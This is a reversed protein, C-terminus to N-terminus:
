FPWIADFIKGLWNPRTYPAAVGKNRSVISFNAIQASAITNNFSIDNPRIIGSVEITQIDGAINRDRTGSVVLNGNPMIDIVVASISDTFGREDKYDAKGDLTNTYTTGGGLKLSPVEPLIHELSVGGDFNASRSTEKSLTRKAKNDVTSEEIILITLIDGVHRAIDDAYLDKKSQDRRAWISDAQMSAGFCLVFCIVVVSLITRNSM